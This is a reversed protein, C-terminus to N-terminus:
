NFNEISHFSSANFFFYLILVNYIQKLIQNEIRIVCLYM